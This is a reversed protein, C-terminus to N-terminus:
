AVLCWTACQRHRVTLPRTGLNPPFPNAVSRPRTQLPIRHVKATTPSTPSLPIPIIITPIPGGRLRNPEYHALKNKKSISDSGPLLAIETISWDQLNSFSASARFDGRRVRVKMNDNAWRCTLRIVAAGELQRTGVLTDVDHGAARALGADCRETAGPWM